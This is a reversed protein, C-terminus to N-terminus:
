LSVKLTATDTNPVRELRALRIVLDIGKGVADYASGPALIYRM